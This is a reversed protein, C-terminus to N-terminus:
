GMGLLEHATGSLVQNRQAPDPLTEAIAKLIQGTWRTGGAAGMPFDTGFAVRSLGFFRIGCELTGAGDSVATDGYFSRLYDGVPRRLSVKGATNLGDRAFDAIEEDFAELRSGVYPIMGGLHHTIFRLQPYRDLVGAYILRAVALTTDFPWGLSRDLLSETQWPYAYPNHQPHIWIPQGAEAAEAYLPWMEGTDVPRGEINTFIQVGVLGLERWAYRVEEIIRDDVRPAVAVGIFRDPRSAVMRAIGEHADRVLRHMSKRPMGLWLPPRVLVLVQIDIEHEDMFRVRADTDYLLPRRGLAASEASPYTAQLAELFDIPCAHSYIDISM